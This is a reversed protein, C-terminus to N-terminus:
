KYLIEDSKWNKPNDIIYQRIRNLENEDRIIHDHFRPQWGFNIEVLRITITCIRKFQNIIVGLPQRKKLTKFEDLIIIGHVHNPMVIYEDLIVYSFHNPIQKWYNNVINGFENLIMEDNEIHGFYCKRNKTVITIFYAGPSSYDYGKLRTSEIRYKNRYLMIRDQYETSVGLENDNSFKTHM